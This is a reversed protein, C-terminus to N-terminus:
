IMDNVVRVDDCNIEHDDSYRFIINLGQGAM